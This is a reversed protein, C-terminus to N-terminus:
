RHHLAPAVARTGRLVAPSRGCSTPPTSTTSRLCLSTPSSTDKGPITSSTLLHGRSREGERGRCRDSRSQSPVRPRTASRLPCVRRGRTSEHGPCPRWFVDPGASRACRPSSSPWAGGNSFGASIFGDSLGQVAKAARGMLALYGVAQAFKGAEDYDDFVRGQYQDVALVDHGAARLRDAAVAVGPRVGLVSHFLAIDTMRRLGGEPGSM